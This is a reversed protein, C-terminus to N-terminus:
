KTPYSRTPATPEGIQGFRQHETNSGTTSSLPKAGPTGGQAAEEPIQATQPPHDIARSQWCPLAM